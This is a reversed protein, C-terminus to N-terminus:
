CVPPCGSPAHPGHTVGSAPHPECEHARVTRSWIGTQKGKLGRLLGVLLALNMSAFLPFVRMLRCARNAPPVVAGVVCLGYFVGQALLAACYLPRHILALSCALVALLLFPCLWRMVKHSLFTFATWGHRPSLLPWLTLMAQLGGVGIRSRRRFEGRIDPATEEFAVADADYVIRCGSRLKAALPIVFDDVITGPPLPSFLERRLAYIAGNAGLLGNLRGECRKLFTEYRWYFGDANRGTAPDTLVLRGCVAGVSPDAFWRVLRRVASADMATNADSLVVIGAHLLPIAENLTAAKGRRRPFILARVRGSYRECIGATGDDSGDSAIAVEIRDSPYDIALANEIRQGIVEAENYAAILLAVRPTENGSPAPPSAERGFVRSLTFILVPYGIYTYVVGGAACWFGVALIMDTTGM